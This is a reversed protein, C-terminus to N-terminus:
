AGPPGSALARELRAFASDGEAGQVLGSLAAVGARVDGGHRQHWADFWDLHTRYLRAAILRANNVPREAVPGLRYTRLAPGVVDQLQARSWRAMEARGSDLAAPGPKTAYFQDLRATLDTYFAGLAVEDAWRDTAQRARLSDGRARFFAAAALYGAYQAFSENFPTASKVYLTNHALEHFVTAALEVSDQGMATSLLPDNFWGLTSFAGSPRLYTDYGRGGLKEEEQRAMKPDFFGKYPVRGVIPYKWIHACLCDRPSASLVVLLTDRGVDSYTTYTEGARLGLSDAFLRVERVLSLLGRTDPTTKPDAIMAALPRRGELIRVEEAGARTLYRVEGSALWATGFSVFLGVAVVLIGM